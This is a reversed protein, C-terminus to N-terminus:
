INYAGDGNSLRSLRGAYLLTQGRTVVTVVLPPIIGTKCKAIVGLGLIMCPLSLYSTLAYLAEHSAIIKVHVM